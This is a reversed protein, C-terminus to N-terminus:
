AAADWDARMATLFAAALAPQNVIVVDCEHNREFGGSSWNASGFSVRAGDSVVAKAHLLEGRSRYLRVPVGSARLAEAAADSPRQHPDLLVSVAVGRAHARQLAHVIGRDTLVFLELDLTRRASEITELILPRIEAGPLTTAVLLGPDIAPAPMVVVRGCTILDRAFVRSLNVVAPGRIEADFDHNRVSHEGWNIGGVVAVRADVLLLKVHDIMTRRVPYDLVDVGAARLRAASASSVEVGPDVIVTVSVGRGSAAVLADVLDRRGLEYMELEISRSAAGLLAHIREFAPPGGALVRVSDAGAALPESAVARYLSPPPPTPSSGARPAACAILLGALM